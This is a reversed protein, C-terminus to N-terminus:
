EIEEEVEKSVNLIASMKKLADALYHATTTTFLCGIAAISVGEFLQTDATIGFAALVEPLLSVIITMMLSGGLVIGGRVLGTLLRAKSFRERLDAVSHYTGLVTNTLLSGLYMCVLIAVLLVNEMLLSFM